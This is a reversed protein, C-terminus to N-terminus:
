ANNKETATYYEKGDTGIVVTGELDTRFVYVDAKKMIQLVELHPHGYDNNEGCSFVCFSPSVFKVFKASSSKSSGHHGAKLVDSSLDVGQNMLENEVSKGADGMFLFSSDKYEIRTIISYDNKDDHKSSTIFTRLIMDGFRYEKENVAYETKIKLTKLTNIITLETQTRKIDDPLQPLLYLKPKIQYLLDEFGGIHDSDPHTAIVLDLSDVGLNDLYSLVDDSHSRKACDILINYEDFRILTSDGQGVDIYHVSLRQSAAESLKVSSVSPSNIDTSNILSRWIKKPGFTFIASIILVVLVIISIASKNNNKKYSTKSM